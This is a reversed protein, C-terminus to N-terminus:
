HYFAQSLIIAWLGHKIDTTYGFVVVHYVTAVMVFAEIILRFDEM